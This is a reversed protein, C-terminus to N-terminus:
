TTTGDDRRRIYEDVAKKAAEDAARAIVRAMAQEAWEMFVRANEESATPDPLIPLSRLFEPTFQPTGPEEEERAQMPGLGTLYWTPNLGLVERFRRIMEGTPDRDDECYKALNQHRMGLAEAARSVAGRTPNRQKPDAYALEIFFKLRRGQTSLDPTSM